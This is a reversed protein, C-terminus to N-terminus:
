KALAQEVVRVIDQHVEKNSRDGDIVEWSQEVALRDLEDAISRHYESPKRDFFDAGRIRCREMGVEIPVRLYFTVDPRLGDFALENLRHRLEVDTSLVGNKSHYALYADDWRDALVIKGEHLAQVARVRQEVHLAQFLFMVSRDDAREIFLSFLEKERPGYAKSVFVSFGKRELYDACEGIQTGKGCGDIGTFNFLM